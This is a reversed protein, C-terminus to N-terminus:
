GGGGTAVMNQLQDKEVELLEGVANGFEQLLTVSTDLMTDLPQHGYRGLFAM